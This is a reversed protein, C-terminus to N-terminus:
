MDEQEKEEEIEVLWENAQDTLEEVVDAFPEWSMNEHASDFLDEMDEFEELTDAYDWYPIWASFDADAKQCCDVITGDEKLHLNYVVQTEEGRNEVEASVNDVLATFVQEKTLKKVKM